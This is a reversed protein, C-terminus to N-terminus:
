RLVFGEIGLIDARTGRVEFYHQLHALFRRAQSENTFPLLVEEASHLVRKDIDEVPVLVFHGRVFYSGASYGRNAATLINDVISKIDKDLCFQHLFLEVKRLAHEHIM